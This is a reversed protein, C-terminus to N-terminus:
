AEVEEIETATSYVFDGSNTKGLVYKEYANKIDTEFLYRHRPEKLVAYPHYIPVVICSHGSNSETFM